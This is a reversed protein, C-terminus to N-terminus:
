ILASIATDLCLIGCARGSLSTTRKKAIRLSYGAKCAFFRAGTRLVGRLWNTRKLYLDRLTLPEYKPFPMAGPQKDDTLKVLHGFLARRRLTFISNRSLRLAYNMSAPHHMDHRQKAEYLFKGSQTTDPTRHPSRRCWFIFTSCFDPNLVLARSTHEWRFAARIAPSNASLLAHSTLPAVV